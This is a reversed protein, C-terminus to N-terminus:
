SRVNLMSSVLGKKIMMSKAAQGRTTNNGFDMINILNNYSEKFFMVEKLSNSDSSLSMKAVV